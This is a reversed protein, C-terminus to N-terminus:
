SEGPRSGVACRRLPARGALVPGRGVRGLRVGVSQRRLGRNGIPCVGERYHYDGVHIVLDPQWAAAADAIARFPWAVPDNCNQFVNGFSSMRCGTDGIVVIRRVERKRLPLVRGDIVAQTVSAPIVTECTLVPFVSPKTSLPSDTDSTREPIVGPAVRIRMPAQGVGDFVIAPCFAATTIARAVAQGDDGLVVFVARITGPTPPWTACSATLLLLAAAHLWRVFRRPASVIASSAGRTLLM